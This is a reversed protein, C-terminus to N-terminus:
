LLELEFTQTGVVKTMKLPGVYKPSLKGKKMVEKWSPVKLM